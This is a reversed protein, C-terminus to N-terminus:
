LLLNIRVTDEISRSSDTALVPVDSIVWGVHDLLGATKAALLYGLRDSGEITSVKIAGKVQNLGIIIRAGDDQKM